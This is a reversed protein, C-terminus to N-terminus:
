RCWNLARMKCLPRQLRCHLRPPRRLRPRRKLLPFWSPSITKRSQRVQLISPWHSGAMPTSPMRFVERHLMQRPMIASLRGVRQELDEIAEHAKEIETTFHKLRGRNVRDPKSVAVSIAGSSEGPPTKTIVRNLLM